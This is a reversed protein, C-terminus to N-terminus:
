HCRQGREEKGGQKGKKNQVLITRNGEININEETFRYICDDEEDQFSCITKTEGDATVFFLSISCLM